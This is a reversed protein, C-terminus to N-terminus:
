LGAELSIERLVKAVEADSVLVGRTPDSERIYRKCAEEACRGLGFEKIARVVAAKDTAARRVTTNHGTKRTKLSSQIPM